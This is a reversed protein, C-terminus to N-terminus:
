TRRAAMRMEGAPTIVIDGGDCAIFLNGDELFGSKKPAGPLMRWKRAKFGTDSNEIIYLVGESMLLHALGTVAVVGFPMRHVANTNGPVVQHAAGRGDLYVLEGGWEGRSSGVLVGGKVRLGCVPAARIPSERWRHEVSDYGVRKADYGLSSLDSRTLEDAGTKITPHLHDTVDIGDLMRYAFFELPFNFPPFKSTYQGGHEIVEIAKSAAERVPPYWHETKLKSLAPLAGQAHLRGLSEASVYPLRWDRVDSLTAVLASEAQVFGIYGLARAAAVRLDWDDSSLEEVVAPGVDRLNEGKEAIDRLLIDTPHVRLRAAYSSAAEPSGIQMVASDVGDAFRRDESALARLKAIAPRAGLGVCGIARVARFRNDILFRKSTAIGLLAEVAASATAGMESFVHCIGDVYESSVPHSDELVRALAAAAPAGAIELAATTQTHREPNARFQAVLFGIAKPTGIRGIAPAIWGDGSRMAAMLADLNAETLGDLDSIVYGAFGRVNARESKLLPLVYPIAAQGHAQIAKALAQEDSGVGDGGRAVDPVRALLSELSEGPRQEPSSGAGPVALIVCSLLAGVM